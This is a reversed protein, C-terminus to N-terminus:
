LNFRAWLILAADPLLLSLDLDRPTGTSDPIQVQLSTDSPRLEGGDGWTSVPVQASLSLDVRPTPYVLLSPVLLASGDGLNQVAFLSASLEPTLGVAASLMAYDRGQFVPAFPDPEAGALSQLAAAGSVEASGAGNRYYQASLVLMDLVPLSYDLGIALQEYLDEGLHLAGELWFGVGLTGQLDLGVLGDESEQRWAGVLAIDTGLLNVRGRGAIRANTFADDSGVVLQLEETEGFPVTARLANVGARQRWPDTLLVQPFPDTPNVALASGWNVAQRGLRLDAAPLYWDLYLREVALYDGATSVGFLANDEAEPVVGAAALGETLGAEEVLEIFAAEQDWGQALGLEVTSTLSVREALPAALTPRFREVLTLPTGEVGLLGQARVEAFGSVEQAAAPGSALLGLVLTCCLTREVMAM